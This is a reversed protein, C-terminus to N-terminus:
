KKGHKGRQARKNAWVARASVSRNFTPVWIRDPLKTRHTKACYENLAAERKKLLVSAQQFMQELSARSQPETSVALAASYAACERRSERIRRELTRQFQSEEYMQDNTKGRLRSPSRHYARQSIGEFFPFFSHYCNWGCLGDGTGYGTAEEFNAYGSVKKGRWFVGGQWKSHSPRAGAHSTTEILHTDLEDMRALQLQATTQNLGTVLARRAAADMHISSGSPYVIRDIGKRALDRIVTRLAEDYSFAGSVTQMYARDLCDEFVKVASTATTNTFNRMLGNTKAIGANVVDMLAESQTIPLPKLGAETYIRDDFALAEECASLVLARVEKQSSASAKAVTDAVDSQLIGLERAKVIQWSATETLQGGNKAIRRAIDQIIDCEVQSWLEVMPEAVNMLYNATLM